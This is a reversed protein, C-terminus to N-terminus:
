SLFTAGYASTPVLLDTRSPGPLDIPPLISRLHPPRGGAVARGAASVLRCLYHSLWASQRYPLQCSALRAVEHQVRRVVGSNVSPLDEPVVRWVRVEDALDSACFARVDHLDPRGLRARHPAPGEGVDPTVDEVPKALFQLVLAPGPALQNIYERAPRWASNRWSINEDDGCLSPRKSRSASGVAFTQRGRVPLPM